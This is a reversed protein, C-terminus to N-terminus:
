SMTPLNKTKLNTIWTWTRKLIWEQQTDNITNNTSGDNSFINAQLRQVDPTSQKLDVALSGHPVKTAKQYVDLLKESHGPYM